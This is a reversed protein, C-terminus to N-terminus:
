KAQESQRKDIMDLFKERRDLAQELKVIEPHEENFQRDKAAQAEAAQAAAAAKQEREAKEADTLLEYNGAKWESMSFNGSRLDAETISAKPKPREVPKLHGQAILDRIAADNPDAAIQTGTPTTFVM